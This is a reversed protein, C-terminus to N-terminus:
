NLLIFLASVTVVSIATSVVITASSRTVFTKYQHALVFVPVGSPLAAQIVAIVPLVGELEFVRFALWWTILPHLILKAFVLWSIEMTAGRISCSAVFLGAAFLACPVFSGGLLDFFTVASAPLSIGTASVSLGAIVAIIPPRSFVQFLPPWLSFNAGRGKDIEALLIALPSFVLGTIIAGIIGPVKGADGFITLIIPLGIYATSSYMATLGHLSLATLNGPFFIRAVTMGICFMALMGGGLAGIYRWNFFEVLTISSLSGFILAPLAIMFVFRSLIESAGEPLLKFFGVLYGSVMIAFLPM